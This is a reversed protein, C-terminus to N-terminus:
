RKPLPPLLALEQLQKDTSSLGNKISNSSSSRRTYHTKPSYAPPPPPPPIIRGKRTTRSVSMTSADMGNNHQHQHQHQNCSSSVDVIDENENVGEDQLMYRRRTHDEQEEEEQEENDEEDKVDQLRQQSLTEDKVMRELQERSMHILGASSSSSQEHTKSRRYCPQVVADDSSFNKKRHNM